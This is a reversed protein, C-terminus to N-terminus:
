RPGGGVGPGGTVPKTGGGKGGGGAGGGNLDDIDLTKVKFRQLKLDSEGFQFGRTAGVSHSRQLFQVSASDVKRDKEMNKLLEVFEELHVSILSQFLDKRRVFLQRFFDLLSILRPDLPKGEESPSSRGGSMLKSLFFRKELESEMEMTDPTGLFPTNTATAPPIADNRNGVTQDEPSYHDPEYETDEPPHFDFSEEESKSRGLGCNGM